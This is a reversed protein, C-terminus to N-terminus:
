EIISDKISDHSVISKEEISIIFNLLTNEDDLTIRCQNLSLNKAQLFAEPLSDHSRLEKNPDLCSFPVPNEILLPFFSKLSM